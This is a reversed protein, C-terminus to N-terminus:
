IKHQATEAPEDTQPRQSKAPPTYKPSRDAYQARFDPTCTDRSGTPPPIAQKLARPAWGGPDPPARPTGAAANALVAPCHLLASGRGGARARVVRVNTLLPRQETRTLM